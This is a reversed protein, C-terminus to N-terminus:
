NCLESYALAYINRMDDLTPMTKYQKIFEEKLEYSLSLFDDSPKKNDQLAALISEHTIESLVPLAVLVNLKLKEATEFEEKTFSRVDKKNFHALCFTNIHKSIEDQANIAWLTAAAMKSRPLVRKQKRVTTDKASQPRGGSPGSKLPKKANGSGSVNRSPSIIPPKQYPIGIEEYYEKANINDKQIGLKIVDNKHNPSHYPSAKPPAQYKDRQKSERRVRTKEVSPIEKFRELLTEESIIDRDVLQIMLSKIAAEDSLIINDFHIEPAVTFGMAKQVIAIEHTWFKLLVDRGYELREILTKLSVYNNTYGGGTQGGTLTQPIGLGAYISSLVPQYKESGLFKYVQSNSEKFTLDPGWVLDITGGTTHSALISRLKDLIPKQPVIKHELSGLTWLRVNSIAGDLAALDAMKMKELMVVDDLIAYIMPNAWPLWDDKKYYFVSINNKNIYVKDREVSEIISSYTPMNSNIAEMMDKTIRKYLRYENGSLKEAELTIPNVFEYNWPIERKNAEVDDFSQAAISTQLTKQQKKTIKAMKREIVVNGIRYLYNLFRESREKGNIKRFWNRYFKEVTKNTHVITMGQCAFDGMLDIVNRILGVKDYADMCLKMIQKQRLNVTQRGNYSQADIHNQTDRVSPSNYLSGSAFNINSSDGKYVADYMSPNSNAYLSALQQKDNCGLYLPNQSM